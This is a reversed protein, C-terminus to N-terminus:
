PFYVAADNGGTCVHPSGATCYMSYSQGTAPSYAYVTGAGSGVEEYYAGQVNEAFGCTTVENVSLSRGCNGPSPPTAPTGEPAPNVGGGSGSKGNKLNKLEKEIQHIKEQQRAKAAGQKRAAEIEDQSAGSDGCGALGLSLGTVLLLTLAPIKWSLRHSDGFFRM